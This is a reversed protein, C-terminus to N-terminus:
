LTSFRYLMVHRYTQGPQVVVSPFKPENIANPFGQTELCLAGHIHYVVGAKGVVGELFNGTYFQMGPATTWLEMVRGSAPEVVRAAKKLGDSGEDEGSLVYNHDYGVPPPGSIDNIRSGIPREQLFDFATGQVSLIEGTPILTDSVPTYSGAFIRIKHDLVDGNGEGKLNFYSHSALNVPTAKKGPKASMDIRFEAKEGLTYTVSVELDGPFGQEGDLSQYTFQVSPGQGHDVIRSQWHVKDFGVLGGHLCNPGNNAPVHYVKGDLQFSANAIRNAVRGVIAGFYTDYHGEVYTKVSDFGLVIDKVQDKSDPVKLSIVTAGWDTIKAEIKGRKLTYVKAVGFDEVEISNEWMRPLVICILVIATAAVLGLFVYVSLKLRSDRRKSPAPGRPPILFKSEDM